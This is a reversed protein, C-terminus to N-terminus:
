VPCDQPRQGLKFDHRDQNEATQYSIAPHLYLFEFKDAQFLFASMDMQFLKPLQTRELQSELTTSFRVFVMFFPMEHRKTQSYIYHFGRNPNDSVPYAINVSPMTNKPPISGSFLAIINPERDTFPQETHLLIAPNDVITNPNSIEAISAREWKKMKFIPTTADM